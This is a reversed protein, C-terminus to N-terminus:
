AVLRVRKGTFDLAGSDTKCSNSINMNGSYSVDRAVLQFCDTTMGATGNFTLLQSPFYASGQLSSVSNGNLLDQCSTNSCSVARRDQYFLLGQYTGSIRNTLDLKGGQLSVTGISTPNTSATSSTMVFVCDHCTLSAATNTMKLSTADLVYIGSPLTVNGQIALSGGTEKLCYTGGAPMSPSNSLDVTGGPKNGGGTDYATFSKCNTPTPVPVNAYPDQQAITFPQLVTGSGWNNSSDIGGVAAIPTATVSSSGTAVAATLSTSNTIMGCGMNVSASGSATIGTASTNELSVVCYHGSPVVTATATATVKPASSMFFGSFSLKKQVQLQVQVAYVDSSYAGSTPQGVYVKTTSMGVHNNYTLDHDVATSVDTRAGTDEVISYVGAMAASDAARQLQRKWLAWEITDSALGASGILLPMAAAAIVLANGRRDHWLKKLFGIM